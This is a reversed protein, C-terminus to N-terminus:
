ELATSREAAARDEGIASGLASGVGDQRRDIHGAASQRFQPASAPPASRRAYVAGLNAEPTIYDAVDVECAGYADPAHDFAGHGARGGSEFEV